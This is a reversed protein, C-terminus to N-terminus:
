IFKGGKVILIYYCSVGILSNVLWFPTITQDSKLGFPKFEGNPFFMCPSKMQYLVFSSFLLVLLSIKLNDNGM